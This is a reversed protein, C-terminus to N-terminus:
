TVTIVTCTLLIEGHPVLYICMYHRTKNVKYLISASKLCVPFSSFHVPDTPLAGSMEMQFVFVNCGNILVNM